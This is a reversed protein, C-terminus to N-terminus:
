PIEHLAECIPEAQVQGFHVRLAEEAAGIQAPQAKRRLRFGDRPGKPTKQVGLRGEIHRRHQQLVADGTQREREGLAKM